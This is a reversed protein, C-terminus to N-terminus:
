KKQLKTKVTRKQGLQKNITRTKKNNLKSKVNIRKTRRGGYKSSQYSSPPSPFSSSLSPPLSLPIYSKNNILELLDLKPIKSQIESVSLSESLPELMERRPRKLKKISQTEQLVKTPTPLVKTPTPILQTQQQETNKIKKLTILGTNHLPIAKKEEMEREDSMETRSQYLMLISSEITAKSLTPIKYINRIKINKSIKSKSISYVSKIDITGYLEDSTFDDNVVNLVLSQMQVVQKGYLLINTFLDITTIDDFIIAIMKNSFLGIGLDKLNRFLSDFSRMLIIKSNILENARDFRDTSSTLKSIEKHNDGIYQIYKDMSYVNVNRKIKVARGYDIIVCSNNTVDVLSNGSHLDLHIYGLLALRLVKILINQRITLYKQRSQSLLDGQLTKKATQYENKCDRFTKSKNYNKMLLIGLKNYREKSNIMQKILWDIVDKAKKTTNNHNDRLYKLLRIIGDSGELVSINGVSPAIEGGDELYSYKWIEQQLKAEEMFGEATETNKKIDNFVGIREDKNSIVVIKLVFSTVDVQKDQELDYETYKTNQPVHLNFIFGKLSDATILDLTSYPEMLMSLIPDFNTIPEMKLERQKDDYERFIDKNELKVELGGNIYNPM